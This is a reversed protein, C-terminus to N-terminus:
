HLTKKARVSLDERIEEHLFRIQALTIAINYGFDVHREFLVLLDHYRKDLDKLPQSFDNLNHNTM